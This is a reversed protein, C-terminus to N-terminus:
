LLLLLLLLVFRFYLLQRQGVSEYGVTVKGDGGSPSLKSVFYLFLRFLNKQREVIKRGAEGGERTAEIPTNKRGM